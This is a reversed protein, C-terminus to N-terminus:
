LGLMHRMVSISHEVAKPAWLFTVAAGYLAGSFHADHNVNDDAGWSRWMSYIIYLAGFVVGPVAIPLFLLSLKMQPYVLIACLMVAAVAGSAGLSSYRPHNRYRVTTPIYAVVVASIYLGAFFLEGFKAVVRDAFMFLVFMNMALHMADAHIWGATFLRYVEGKQVRYPNLVLARKIKDSAFAIVSVIVVSIAILYFMGVQVPLAIRM